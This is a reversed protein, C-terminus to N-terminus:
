SQLYKQNVKIEAEVGVSLGLLIYVETIRSTFSFVFEFYSLLLVLCGAKLGLRVWVRGCEQETHQETWEKHGSLIIIIYYYHQKNLNFSSQGFYLKIMIYWIVIHFCHSSLQTEM